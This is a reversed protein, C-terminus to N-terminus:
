SGNVELLNSWLKVLRGPCTTCFACSLALLLDICSCIIVSVKTNPKLADIVPQLSGPKWTTFDSAVADAFNEEAVQLAPPNIRM